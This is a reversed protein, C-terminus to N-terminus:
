AFDFRTARSPFGTLTWAYIRSPRLVWFPVSPTPSETTFYQPYKAVNAEIVAAVLPHEADTVQEASGEIVIAQDPDPLAATVGSGRELHRVWRTEPSGGFCLTDEVFVGDVPRVHPLADASTTALLYNPSSAILAAVEEWARLEATTEGYENPFRASRAVPPTRTPNM